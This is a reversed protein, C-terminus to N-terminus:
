LTFCTIMTYLFIILVHNVQFEAEANKMDVSWYYILDTLKTLPRPLNSNQSFFSGRRVSVTARCQQTPCRWVVGDLVRTYLREQMVTNCHPCQM